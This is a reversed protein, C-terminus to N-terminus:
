DVSELAPKDKAQRLEPPVKYTKDRVSILRDQFPRLVETFVGPIEGEMSKLLFDVTSSSVDIVKASRDLWPKIDFPTNVSVNESVELALEKAGLEDWATMRVHAQELNPTPKPVIFATLALLERKSVHCKM